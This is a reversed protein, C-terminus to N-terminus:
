DLAVRAAGAGPEGQGDRLRVRAVEEDPELPNALAREIVDRRLQPVLDGAGLRRDFDLERMDQLVEDAIEGPRRLRDLDLDVVVVRRDILRDGPLDLLPQRLYFP